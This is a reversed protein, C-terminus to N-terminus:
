STRGGHWAPDGLAYEMGSFIMSPRFCDISLFANQPHLKDSRQKLLFSDQKGSFVSGAVKALGLVVERRGLRSSPRAM